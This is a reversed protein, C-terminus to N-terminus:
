QYSMRSIRNSVHLMTRLDRNNGPQPPMNVNASPFQSNVMAEAHQLATSTPSSPRYHWLFFNKYSQVTHDKRNRAAQAILHRDGVDAPTPLVGVRNIANWERAPMQEFRRMAEGQENIDL